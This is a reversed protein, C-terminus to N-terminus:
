RVMFRGMGYWEFVTETTSVGGIVSGISSTIGTIIPISINKLVHKYLM